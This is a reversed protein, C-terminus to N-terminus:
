DGGACVTDGDVAAVRKILPVAMPLYHREDALRRAWLPAWALVLDRRAPRGDIRWYLGVPASASANWVLRPSPIASAAIALIGFLAVTLTLASIARRSRNRRSRM